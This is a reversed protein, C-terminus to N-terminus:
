PRERCYPESILDGPTRGFNQTMSAFATCFLGDATVWSMYNPNDAAHTVNIDTAGPYSSLIEKTSGANVDAEHTASGSPNLDNWSCGVLAGSGVLLATAIAIKKRANIREM